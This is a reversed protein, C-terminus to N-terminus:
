KNKHYFYKLFINSFKKAIDGKLIAGLFMKVFKRYKIKLVNEYIQGSDLEM